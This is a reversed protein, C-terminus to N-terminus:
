ICHNKIICTTKIGFYSFERVMSLLSSYINEEAVCMYETLYLSMDMFGRTPIPAQMGKQPSTLTGSLIM